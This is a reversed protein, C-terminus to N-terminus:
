TLLSAGTMAILDQRSRNAESWFAFWFVVLMGLPMGVFLLQINPPMSGSLSIPIVASYWILFWFGLFGLVFPHPAMQIHILTERGRTEFKGQVVPLFSNRYHIIRMIKFGEESLTGQYPAHNRELLHFRFIKTPEVQQSLRELLNPLPEYTTLTFRDAPLINM